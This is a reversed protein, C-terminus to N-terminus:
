IKVVTIQSLIEYKTNYKIKKIKTQREKSSIIKNYSINFHDNITM